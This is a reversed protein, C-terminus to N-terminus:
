HIPDAVSREGAGLVGNGGPALTPSAVPHINAWVHRGAGQRKAAYLATDASALLDDPSRGDIPYSAGGISVGLRVPKGIGIEYPESIRAIIRRSIQTAVDVSTQPLIIVFEDGGIRAVVDVARVNERLRKAVLQLASDGAAHGHHDNVQKFGDLDLYLVQVEAAVGVANEAEKLIANLQEREQARNSLGTLPDSQALRANEYQATFLTVLGNYNDRMVSIMGVTTLMLPLPLILAYPLPSIALALSYPVTTIIIAAITYRPTGANRSSLAGVLASAATGLLLILPVDGTTVGVVLACSLCAIWILSFVLPTEADGRQGRKEHADYRAVNIWRFCGFFLELALWAYAWLAQTMVIAAFAITSSAIISFMLTRKKAFSYTLLQRQVWPPLDKDSGGLRRGISQMM